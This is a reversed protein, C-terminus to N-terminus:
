KANKFTEIACDIHYYQTIDKERFMANKAIRLIGKVIIRKCKRCEVTRRKSYDASFKNGNINGNNIADNNPENERSVNEDSNSVELNNNVSKSLSQQHRNEGDNIDDNIAAQRDEGLPPRKKLTGRVKWQQTNEKKNKEEAKKM